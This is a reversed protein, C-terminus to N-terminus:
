VKNKLRNEIEEIAKFFSDKVYEKENKNSILNKIKKISNEDGIDMLGRAAYQRVQPKKDILGRYFFELSKKNKIKRMASYSMRRINGHFHATFEHIIDLFKDDRLEGCIWIYIIVDDLNKDTKLKKYLEKKFELVKTEDEQKLNELLKIRKEKDLLILEELLSKKTKKIDKKEKQNAKGKIIHEQIQTKKLNRIKSIIDINKGEKYLLYTIEYDELEDIDNWTKIKIM